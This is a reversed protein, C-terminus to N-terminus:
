QEKTLKNLLETISREVNKQWERDKTDNRKFAEKNRARFQVITTHQALIYGISAKYM